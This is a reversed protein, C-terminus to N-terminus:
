DKFALGGGGTNGFKEPNTDALDMGFMEATSTVPTLPGNAMLAGQSAAWMEPTSEAVRVSPLVAMTVRGASGGSVRFAENNIKTDQHTLWVVVASVHEPQFYRDLTAVITPDAISDTMRTRAAPFICNATIGVGIGEWALSRTLGFIAAKASGYATIGANGLMGSSATTIIRGTGSKALFPWAARLVEVTGRFHIDFVRHWEEAPTEVFVTSHMVGANCVAIDLRGFADITSKIIADGGGVVNDHNAIASGGDAIIERVVAEAASQAGAAPPLDNVVVRAGRTALMKAHSRGMGRGAGTVLAVRGDFDLLTM